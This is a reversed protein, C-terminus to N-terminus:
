ADDQIEKKLRELGRYVLSKATSLPCGLVESVESLPLDNYYRLVLAQRQSLPLAQFLPWVLGDEASLSSPPLSERHRREVDVHRCRDRVLNLVMKRLYALQNDPVLGARSAFRVFTEQVIDEADQRSGTVLWATRVLSSWCAQYLESLEDTGPRVDADVM